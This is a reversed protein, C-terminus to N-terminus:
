ARSGPTSTSPSGAGPRGAARRRGRWQGLGGPWGLLRAERTFNDLPGAGNFALRAPPLGPLNVLHVFIGGAPEDSNVNFTLKDTAPVYTMLAKFEGPADLRRATLDLDLGESPPGLTVKGAINLRAAVGILPEGLSLEEIAFQKIVVKVPLEPLISRSGARM